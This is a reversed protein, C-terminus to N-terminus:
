YWCSTNPSRTHNFTLYVCVTAFNFILLMATKNFVLMCDYYVPLWKDYTVGQGWLHIRSNEAEMQRRGLRWPVFILMFPMIHMRPFYGGLVCGWGGGGRCNESIYFFLIDYLRRVEWGVLIKEKVPAGLSWTRGWLVIPQKNERGSPSSCCFIEFMFGLPKM